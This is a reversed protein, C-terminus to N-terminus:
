SYVMFPTNILLHYEGQVTLQINMSDEGYDNIATCTFLASDKREAKEIILKTRDGDVLEEKTIRYRILLLYIRRIVGFCLHM